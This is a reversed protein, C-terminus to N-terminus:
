GFEKRGTLVDFLYEEAEEYTYFGVSWSRSLVKKGNEIEVFFDSVQWLTKGNADSTEKSIAYNVTGDVEKLVESM